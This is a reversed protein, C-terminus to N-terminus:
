EPPSGSISPNLDYLRYTGNAYIPAQEIPGLRDTLLHTIGTQRSLERLDQTRYGSGAAFHDQYFKGLFQLRRNWEVIGAADQPCDKFAVYESRKAFWKFTYNSRPTQVVVDDPLHQDIWQCVAIWDPQRSWAYRAHRAESAVHWLSTVALILIAMTRIRPSLRRNGCARQTILMACAMPLLLDAVRFPYFKLLDMRWVFGPMKQPPRPGYGLAIGCFAFIISWFVLSQWVRDLSTRRNWTAIVFGAWAALLIGYFGYSEVPFAMPDLHHRLRYFVQLYTGAYKTQPDVPTTLLSIAPILGPLACVVTALGFKTINLLNQTLSLPFFAAPSEPNPQYHVFQYVASVVLTAIAALTAWGGVVPHFSIALGLCIGSRILRHRAFQGFALLLLGYAYVKGEAGGVLWEGSFNGIAQFGLFLWASALTALSGPLLPQFASMWGAALLAGAILRAMVVAVPFSAVTTLWGITAFFVVHADTSALFFDQGLWNPQWFHRAKTFYHPENVSPFPAALGSFLWFSVAIALWTLWADRRNAAPLSAPENM